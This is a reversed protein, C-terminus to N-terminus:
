PPTVNKSGNFTIGINSNCWALTPENGSGFSATLDVVTAYWVRIYATDGGNTTAKFSITQNATSSATWLYNGQYNGGSGKNGNAGGCFTIVLTCGGYGAAGAACYYKHGSTLKITQYIRGDDTYGVGPSASYVLLGTNYSCTSTENTSNLGPYTNMTAHSWGKYNILDTVTVEKKWVTTSGYKIEKLNTTNYKATGGNNFTTGNLVIPM